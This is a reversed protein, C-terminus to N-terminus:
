ATMPPPPAQMPTFAVKDFVDLEDRLKQTDFYNVSM